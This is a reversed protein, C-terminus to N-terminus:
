IGSTALGPPIIDTTVTSGNNQWVVSSLPMSSSVTLTAGTCRGSGSITAVPPANVTVVAIDTGSGSVYSITATGNSVGNVVGSSNITAIATNGSSWAGSPTADSLTINTGACVNTAGTIQAKLGQSCVVFSLMLLLSYLQKKMVKTKIHNNFPM